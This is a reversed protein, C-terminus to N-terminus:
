ETQRCYDGDITRLMTQSRGKLECNKLRGRLTWFSSEPRLTPLAPNRAHLAADIRAPIPDRHRKSSLADAPRPYSSRRRRTEYPSADSHLRRNLVVGPSCAVARRLLRDIPRFCTGVLPQTM